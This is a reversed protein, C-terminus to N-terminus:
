WKIIPMNDSFNGWMVPHQPRRLRSTEQTVGTHVFTYLERATITRDKNSDAGGRLGRELFITFLSNKYPTELSTETSRSSLFLMVNTPSPSQERNNNRMKGSFCADALIVKHCSDFRKMVQFIRQYNLVQDYCVLGGKVGHGSFYLVVVDGSHAQSYFSQMTNLVNTATAKENTIYCASARPNKDFINYITMADNASVRLDNKKGPYDSIGVCVVYTKAQVACALVLLIHILLLARKM